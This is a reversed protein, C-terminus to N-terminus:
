PLFDSVVLSCSTQDKIICKISILHCFRVHDLLQPRHWGFDDIRRYSDIALRDDCCLQGHPLLTPNSKSSWDEDLLNDTLRLWMPLQLRWLSNSVSVILVLWLLLFAKSHLSFLSANFFHFRKLWFLEGVFTTSLGFTLHLRSGKGESHVEHQVSSGWWRM